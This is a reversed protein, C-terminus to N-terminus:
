YTADLGDSHDLDKELCTRKIGQNGTKMEGDLPASAYALSGSSLTYARGRKENTSQTANDGSLAISTM